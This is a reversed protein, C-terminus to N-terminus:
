SEYSRGAQKTRIIHEDIVRVFSLITRHPKLKNNKLGEALSVNQQRM